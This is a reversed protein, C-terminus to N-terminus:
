QPTPAAQESQTAEEAMVRRRITRSRPLPACCIKQPLWSLPTEPWCRRGVKMAKTWCPQNVANDSNSRRACTAQLRVPGHVRPRPECHCTTDQAIFRPCPARRASKPAAPQLRTAQLRTPQSHVCPANKWAGTQRSALNLPPTDGFADPWPGTQLYRARHSPPERPTGLGPRAIWASDTWEAARCRCFCFVWNVCILGIARMMNYCTSHLM